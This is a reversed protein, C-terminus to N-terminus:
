KKKRAEEKKKEEQDVRAKLADIVTRTKEAETPKTSTNAHAAEAKRPTGATM